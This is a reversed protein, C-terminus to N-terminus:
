NLYEFEIRNVWADPKVGMHDCFMEVFEHAARGPFGERVVDEDTISWLRERRVSAVRILALKEVQEGKKLGMGKKVAWLVTGPKLGDWNLRRTVTKSRDLIQSTTLAFSMSRPM